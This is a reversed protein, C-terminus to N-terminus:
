RGAFVDERRLLRAAALLVLHARWRLQPVTVVALVAVAMLVALIVVVILMEVLTFGPFIKTRRFM